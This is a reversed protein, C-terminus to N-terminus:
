ASARMQKANPLLENSKGSAKAVAFAMHIESM